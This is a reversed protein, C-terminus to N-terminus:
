DSRHIERQGTGRGENGSEGGCQALTDPISAGTGPLRKWCAQGARCQQMTAWHAVQRRDSGTAMQMVFGWGEATETMAGSGSTITPRGRAPQSNFAIHVNGAPTVSGIMYQCMAPGDDLRAVVPGFFYGNEFREIHWVTQDSVASAAAPDDTNWQFALLSEAPVYWYTGGDAGLWAWRSATSAPAADPPADGAHVGAALLWAGTLLIISVRHKM